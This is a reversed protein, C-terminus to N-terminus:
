ARGLAGAENRHQIGRVAKLLRLASSPTFDLPRFEGRQGLTELIANDAAGIHRACMNWDGFERAEAAGASIVQPDTHRTDGVIRGYTTMVAQYPGELAQLFWGDHVLLLGTVSVGRNNRISTAIIAAVQEEASAPSLNQRSAYILRHLTRPQPYEPM